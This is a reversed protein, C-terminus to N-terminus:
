KPQYKEFYVKARAQGKALQDPTLRKAVIDRNKASDFNASGNTASVSFWAYAETYDQPVGEGSEYMIGLTAQALTDGQEAAKHYWKFAERNDQAVGQGKAYMAGLSFQGNVDGQEAAKHYWKFAERNDQPVGQGNAYMLGLAYQAFAAGKEALPKFESFATKFDERKYAALGEDVGAYATSLLGTLVLCILSHFPSM